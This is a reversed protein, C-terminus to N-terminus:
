FWLAKAWPKECGGLHEESGGKGLPASLAAWADSYFSSPLVWRRHFLLVVCEPPVALIEQGSIVDNLFVDKKEKIRTYM